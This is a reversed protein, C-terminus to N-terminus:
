SKGGRQSAQKSAVMEGGLFGSNRMHEASKSIRMVGVGYGAPVSQIQGGDAMFADVSSALLDREHQRSSVTPMPPVVDFRPGIHRM